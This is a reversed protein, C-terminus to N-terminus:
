AVEWSFNMGKGTEKAYLRKISHFPISIIEISGGFTASFEIKDARWNFHKIALPSIDLIINGDKEFFDLRADDLKESDVLLHITEHRDFIEQYAAQFESINEGGVDASLVGSLIHQCSEM